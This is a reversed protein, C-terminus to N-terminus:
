RPNRNRLLDSFTKPCCKLVEMLSSLYLRFNSLILRKIKKRHGHQVQVTEYVGKDDPTQVQSDNSISTEELGEVEMSVGPAPRGGKMTCTVKGQENYASM